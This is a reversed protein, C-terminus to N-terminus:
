ALVLKKTNSNGEAMSTMYSTEGIWTGWSAPSTAYQGIIWVKVDNPDVAAGGGRGWAPAAACLSQKLLGSAQLLNPADTSLRGTFRLSPFESPATRNFVMILNSHGDVMLGPCFYHYGPAGYIGQQTIVGAGPNIQIWHIASVNSEQGWNAAVTHATWLLGHRFVANTLRTDGTDIEWRSDKQQANPALYYPITPLERRTLQPPSALPHSLSWLTLSLGDNSANVLYEVGPVGFTHAPQLAFALSDDPNRFNWFDWWQLAGGSYPEDKRLIRLKAYQFAGRWSFMNISLYLASQDVGLSLSDAQHRTPVMGDVSADLAWNWWPGLPNRTQSVSILLWSKRQKLSLASAALVWRGSYQDYISRPSFIMAETVVGSFWDALECQFLWRGAKDQVGWSSNAIIVLHSPGAALSCDPVSWGTDSLASFDAPLKPTGFIAAVKASPTDSQLLEARAAAQPSLRAQVKLQAYADESELHRSSLEWRVTADSPSRETFERPTVSFGRKSPLSRMGKAEPTTIIKEERSTKM